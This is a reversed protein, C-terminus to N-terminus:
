WIYFESCYSCNIMLCEFTGASNHKNTGCIAVYLVAEDLKLQSKCGGTSSWSAMAAKWPVSALCDFLPVTSTQLWSKEM